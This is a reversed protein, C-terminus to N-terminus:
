SNGMLQLFLKCNKVQDVWLDYCQRADTLRELGVELSKSGGEDPEPCM